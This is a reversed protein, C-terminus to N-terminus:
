RSGHNSPIWIPLSSTAQSRLAVPRSLHQPLPVGFALPQGISLPVHEASGLWGPHSHIGHGVPAPEEGEAAPDPRRMSSIKTPPDLYQHVWVSSRPYSLPLGNLSDSLVVSGNPDVWSYYEAAPLLYPSATQCVLMALLVGGPKSM